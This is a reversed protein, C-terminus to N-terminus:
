RRDAQRHRRRSRSRPRVDRAWGGPKAHSYKCNKYMCRYREWHRCAILERSGPSQGRTAPVSESESSPVVISGQSLKSRPMLKAEPKFVRRKQVGESDTNAEQRELCQGGLLQENEDGKSGEKELEDGENIKSNISELQMWGPQFWGANVVGNGEETGLNQEGNNVEQQRHDEAAITSELRPATMGERSWLSGDLAM